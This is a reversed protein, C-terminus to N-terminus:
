AQVRAEAVNSWPVEVLYSDAVRLLYLTNGEYERWIQMKDSANLSNGRRRKDPLTIECGGKLIVHSYMIPGGTEEVPEETKKPM